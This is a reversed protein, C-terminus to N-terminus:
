GGDQIAHGEIRDILAFGRAFFSWFYFLAPLISLFPAAWLIVGFSGRVGSSIIAM